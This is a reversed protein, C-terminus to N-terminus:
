QLARKRGIDTQTLTASLRSWNPRQCLIKRISSSSDRSRLTDTITIPYTEPRIYLCLSLSVSLCLSLSVICNRCEETGGDRRRETGGDRRGETEGDRRGETGGDRRGDM